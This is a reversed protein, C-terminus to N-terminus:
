EDGIIRSAIYAADEGVGVLLGSKNKYLWPLGVFYLGPYATVGRQQIPYGDHDFIPLKVLNFNFTFGMAWVISTVGAPHLDLETIEQSRYGDRLVPLNEAPADL